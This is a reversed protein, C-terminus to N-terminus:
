PMDPPHQFIMVFYVLGHLYPNDLQSCRENDVHENPLSVPLAKSVSIFYDGFHKLHDIM